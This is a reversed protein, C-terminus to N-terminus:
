KTMLILINDDTEPRQNRLDLIEVKGPLTRAIVSWFDILSEHVDEVVYTGKMDLLESFILMTRINAQPDHFGDDIILDFPGHKRLSEKVRQLSKDSTQDVEYGIFGDKQITEIAIPDIDAGVIISEKFKKRFAKLGGGPPLGAYPYDNESGVGIELIKPVTKNALIEFYIKGYSHRTDKDSGFETFFSERTPSDLNDSAYKETTINDQVLLGLAESVYPHLRKYRSLKHEDLQAKVEDLQAKVEDLQAKVADKETRARRIKM